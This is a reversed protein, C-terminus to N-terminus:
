LDDSQPDDIVVPTAPAPVFDPQFAAVKALPDVKKPKGRPQLWEQICEVTFFTRISKSFRPCAPRWEDAEYNELAQAMADVGLGKDILRQMSRFIGVKEAESSKRIKEDYFAVFRYLERTPRQEALPAVPEPASAPAASSPAPSAAVPDPRPPAM